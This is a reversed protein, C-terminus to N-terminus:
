SKQCGTSFLCVHTHLLFMIHFILFTIHFLLFTIHFMLFTIHFVFIYYLIHIAYYSIDLVNFIKCKKKKSHGQVREESVIVDNVGDLLSELTSNPDINFSSLM